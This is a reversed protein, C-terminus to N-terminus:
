QIANGMKIDEESSCGVSVTLCGQESRQSPAQPAKGVSTERQNPASKHPTIKNRQTEEPRQKGNTTGGCNKTSGGILYSHKFFACLRLLSCLGFFGGSLSFLLLSLSSSVQPPGERQFSGGGHRLSSCGEDGVKM